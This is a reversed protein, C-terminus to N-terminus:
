KVRKRMILDLDRGETDGDAQTCVHGEEAEERGLNVDDDKM